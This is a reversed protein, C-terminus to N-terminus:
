RGGFLSNIFNMVGSQQLWQLLKDINLVFDIFGTALYNITIAAVLGSLFINFCGFNRYRFKM